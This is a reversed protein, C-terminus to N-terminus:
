RKLRLWILGILGSCLLVSVAYVGTNSYHPLFQLAAAGVAPGAFIGAGIAAEHLGGHEGKTEGVDMSYFLSSYYILGAGLGFLVQALVAIWVIRALLLGMFGIILLLFATILWRFKYHWGTWRWCLAFSGLRAFLWVSGFLGSQAPTLDLRTALGPMVAFITNIAVFAFPNSLWAMKLFRDPSVPQAFAAPEPHPTATNFVPLTIPVSRAHRSLWAVLALQIAFLIAPVWFVAGRGLHEYLAGGTFYAFAAGSAWTCNYIGVMQQVGHRTEGESVLAELAPWTFLLVISYAAVIGLMAPVSDLLGGTIAVLGLGGFGVKLSTLFGRRQAFKGCQWASFIYIFGHLASVWLNERNGFGFRDRLFYFLYNLFYSTAVTNLATAAFYGAKLQRHTM